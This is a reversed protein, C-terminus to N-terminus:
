KGVALKLQKENNLIKSLFSQRHLDCPGHEQIAAIHAKTAYGKNTHWCYHPFKKAEVRM